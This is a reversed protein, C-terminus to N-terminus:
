GAIPGLRGLAGSLSGGFTALTLPESSSSSSSAEICVLGPLRMDGTM